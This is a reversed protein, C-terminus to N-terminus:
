RCPPALSSGHQWIVLDGDLSEPVVIKYFAGGDTSGTIESSAIAQVPVSVLLVALFAYGFRFRKM